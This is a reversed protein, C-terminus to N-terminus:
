EGERKFLDRKDGAELGMRRWACMKKRKRESERVCVSERERRRWGGRGNGCLM